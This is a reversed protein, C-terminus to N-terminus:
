VDEGEGRWRLHKAPVGASISGAPVDRTVVSGAGIQAGESIRIGPLITTGIGIDCAREIRVEAFQLKGDMIRRFRPTEEHFSTIINVKPGIGVGEGIFIGGAGHLFCGQGIWVNDSIVIKNQYYGKVMTQHGVYVNNGFEVNEPHFILVGDEIIVGHGIRALQEPMFCGSGHSRYPRKTIPQGDNKESMFIPYM